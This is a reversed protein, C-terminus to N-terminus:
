QIQYEICIDANVTIIGPNVPTADSSEANAKMMRAGDFMYPMSQTNSEVASYVGVIRVGLTNAIIDARRRADLVANKLALTHASAENKLGYSLGHVKVAGNAVAADIVRSTNKIDNVNVTIYNDARYGAVKTYDNKDYVPNITYRTQIDKSFIGLQNMAAIVDNATKANEAQALQATKATNSVGLTVVAQDPMVEASGSGTVVISPGEAAMAVTSMGLCMMVAALLIILNKKVM